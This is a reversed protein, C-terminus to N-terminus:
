PIMKESLLAANELLHQPNITGIILSHIPNIQNLFEFNSRIDTMHGSGLAKKLIIGKNLQAAKHVVPLEAQQDKNLTIMAVDATEITQIGGQISKTSMGYSRIFGKKKFDALTEFVGQQIIQEDSGDSHILLVDLYDTNLRKLSRKLSFELFAAEYNFCSVGQEFEEGAKSILVWQQRTKSLNLLHGLREECHGYAPATDLLNIGQDQACALLNLIEVDSPLAFPQPYKVQTNRGFKVTGLGLKSVLIDTNGLYSRHILQIKFHRHSLDCLRAFWIWERLDAGQRKKFHRLFVM